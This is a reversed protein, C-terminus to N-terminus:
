KKPYGSTMARAAQNPTLASGRAKPVAPAKVVNAKTMTLQPAPIAKVAPVAAAKAIINRIQTPRFGAM